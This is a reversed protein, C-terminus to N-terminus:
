RVPELITVQGADADVRIRDGTRLIETGNGTSIVAPIGLERSAIACHSMPGGVDIVLAGAMSLLPMWSPDTVHCALIDGDAFDDAEEVDAIVRVVGEVVGGCV